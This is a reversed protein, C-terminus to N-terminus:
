SHAEPVVDMTRSVITAVGALSGAVSDYQARDCTFKTTLSDGDWQELSFRFGMREQANFSEFYAIVGPAIERHLHKEDVHFTARIHEEEFAM